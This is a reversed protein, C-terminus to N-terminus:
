SFIFNEDCFELCKMVIRAHENVISLWKIASGNTTRDLIFNWAWVDSITTARCRDCAAGAQIWRSAVSHLIVHTGRIRDALGVEGACRRVVGRIGIPTMAIRIMIRRAM